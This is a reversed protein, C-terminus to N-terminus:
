LRTGRIIRLVKSEQQPCLAVGKKNLWHLIKRYLGEEQEPSTKVSLEVVPGMGRVSVIDLSAELDDDEDWTQKWSIEPYPGLEPLRNWPLSNERDVFSKQERTWELRESKHKISCKVERQEGYRDVQCDPNGALLSSSRVKVESSFEGKRLKAKLFRGERTLSGRSDDFYTVEGRRAKGDFGLHEALGNVNRECIAFQLDVVSPAPHALIPILLILLAKM